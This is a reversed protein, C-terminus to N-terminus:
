NNKRGFEQEELQTVWDTQGMHEQGTKEVLAIARGIVEYLLREPITTAPQAIVLKICEAWKSLSKGQQILVVAAHIFGYLSKEEDTVPEYALLENAVEAWKFLEQQPQQPKLRQEQLIISTIALRAENVTSGRKCFVEATPAVINIWQVLPSYTFRGIKWGNLSSIIDGPSSYWRSFNLRELTAITSQDLASVLSNKM